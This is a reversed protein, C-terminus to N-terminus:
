TPLRVVTFLLWRRKAGVGAWMVPIRMLSSIHPPPRMQPNGSPQDISQAIDRSRRRFLLRDYDLELIPIFIHRRFPSTYALGRSTGTRRCTQDNLRLLFTAIKLGVGYGVLAYLVNESGSQLRDRGEKRDRVKLPLPRYIRCLCRCLEM